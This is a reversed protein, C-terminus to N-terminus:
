LALLSLEHCGGGREREKKEKFIDLTDMLHKKGIRGLIPLTYGYGIGAM